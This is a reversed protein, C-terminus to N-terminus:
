TQSMSPSMENLGVSMGPSSASSAALPSSRTSAACGAISAAGSLGLVEEPPSWNKLGSLPATAFSTRARQPTLSSGVGSTSIWAGTSADLKRAHCM